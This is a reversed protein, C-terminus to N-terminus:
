PKRAILRFAPIGTGGTAAVLLSTLVRTVSITICVGSSFNHHQPCAPLALAKLNSM